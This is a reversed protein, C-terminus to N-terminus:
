RIAAFLFNSRVLMFWGKRVVVARVGEEFFSPLAYFSADEEVRVIGTFPDGALLDFNAIVEGYM